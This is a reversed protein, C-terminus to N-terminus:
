VAVGQRILDAAKWKRVDHHIEAALQAADWGREINLPIVRCGGTAPMHIMLGTGLDIDPHLETRAHTDPDYRQGYAYIGIQTATGL